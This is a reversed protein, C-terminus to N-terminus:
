EPFLFLLFVRHTHSSSLADFVYCFCRRSFIVYCEENFM